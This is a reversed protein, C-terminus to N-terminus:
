QKVNDHLNEKQEEVNEQYGEYKRCKCDIELRNPLREIRACRGHLWNGCSKCLVANLMTNRGYIVCPDKMSSPKVTVQEIKKVM